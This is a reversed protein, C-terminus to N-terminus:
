KDERTPSSRATLLARLGRRTRRVYFPGGLVLLLPIAVIFNAIAAGFRAVLGMGTGAYRTLLVTVLLALGLGVLEIWDFSGDSAKRLANEQAEPEFKQLEPYLLLKWPRTSTAMAIIQQPNRTAGIPGMISKTYSGVRTRFTDM